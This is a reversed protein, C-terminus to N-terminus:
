DNVQEIEENIEKSLDLENGDNDFCRWKGGDYLYVYDVCSISRTLFDDVDTYTKASTNEEGRDRGYFVTFYPDPREFSNRLGIEPGLSSIDGLDLLAILKDEDSYHDLLTKGVGSPYGDWHAYVSRVSGDPYCMAINSRTAM